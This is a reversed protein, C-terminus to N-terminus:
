KQHKSLYEIAQKMVEINDNFRGLGTNCSDCIWENPVGTEHNHDLVIKSTLGPITKKKCIPCTWIIMDPKNQIFKKKLKENIGEGDILVRCDNCSPRRVTRNNKGNQNKQFKEISLLRNCRNCVKVSFQDGTKRPDFIKVLESFVEIPYEINVFQVFVTNSQHKKLIGIEFQKIHIDASDYDSIIYVFTEM